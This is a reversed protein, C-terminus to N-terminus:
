LLGPILNTNKKIPDLESPGAVGYENLAATVQPQIFQLFKGTDHSLTGTGAGGKIIATTNNDRYLRAGTIIMDNSSVNQIKLDVVSTNIRYNSGNEATIAGFFKQIGETTTVLYAYKAYIQQVTVSGPNDTDSVDLEFNAFDADIELSTSDYNAASGDIANNNYITDDVQNAKFSIGATSAVGFTEFPLLATTGSQCTIRLRVEDDPDAM